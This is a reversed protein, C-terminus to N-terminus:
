YVFLRYRLFMEIRFETNSLGFEELIMDYTVINFNIQGSLACVFEVLFYIATEGFAIIKSNKKMKTDPLAVSPQMVLNYEELYYQKLSIMM